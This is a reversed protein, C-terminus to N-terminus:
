SVLHNIGNLVPKAVGDAFCNMEDFILELFSEMFEHWHDMVHNIVNLFLKM